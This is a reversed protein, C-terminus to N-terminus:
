FQTNSVAGGGGGGGLHREIHKQEGTPIKRFSGWVMHLVHM